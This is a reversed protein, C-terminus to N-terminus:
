ADPVLTRRMATRIEGYLRRSQEVHSDDFPTGEYRAEQSVKELFRYADEIMRTEAFSRLLQRRRSHSGIRTLGRTAYFGDVYHLVIYFHAIVTWEPHQRPMASIADLFTEFRVAKALHWAVDPM